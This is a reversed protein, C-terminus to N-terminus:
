YKISLKIYISISVYLFNKSTHIYIYPHACMYKRARSSSHIHFCHYWLLLPNVLIGNKTGFVITWYFYEPSKSFHSIRAGQWTIYMILRSYWTTGSLLIISLCIFLCFSFVFVFKLFPSVNFPCLLWIFYIDITLATIIQAVGYLLVLNYDLM